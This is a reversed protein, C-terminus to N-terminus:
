PPARTSPNIAARTLLSGVCFSDAPVYGLRIMTGGCHPCRLQSKAAHVLVETCALYYLNGIAAAVLWKLEGLEHRSSSHMFGYHRVRHLASPLVHRVMTNRYSPLKVLIIRRRAPRTARLCFRSAFCNRLSRIIVVRVLRRQVIKSEDYRSVDEMALFQSVCLLWNGGGMVGLGCFEAAYRSM